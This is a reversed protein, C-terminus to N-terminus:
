MISTSSKGARPTRLDEAVAEVMEAFTAEKSEDLAAIASVRPELPNVYICVCYPTGPPMDTNQDSSAYRLALKSLVDAIKM